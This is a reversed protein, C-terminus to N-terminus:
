LVRHLLRVRVREDTIGAIRGGLVQLQREQIKNREIDVQMVWFCKAAVKEPQLIEDAVSRKNEALETHIRQPVTLRLLGLEQDAMQAFGSQHAHGSAEDKGPRIVPVRPTMRDLIPSEADRVGVAHGLGSIM